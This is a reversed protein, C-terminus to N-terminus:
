ERATAKDSTLNCDSLVMEGDKEVYAEDGKTSLTVTGDSYRTGSGSVVQQLMFSHGEWNLEALGELGTAHGAYAITIDVPGACRYSVTERVLTVTRPQGACATLLLALGAVLVQPLTLFRM